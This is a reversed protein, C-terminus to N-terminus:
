DIEYEVLIETYSKNVLESVSIKEIEM